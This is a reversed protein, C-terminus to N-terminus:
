GIAAAARARGARQNVAKPTWNELSRDSVRMPRSKNAILEGREIALRVAMQTVGRKEAAEAVSLWHDDLPDSLDEGEHRLEGQVLGLRNELDKVVRFLPHDMVARTIRRGPQLVPNNVSITNIFKEWAMGAKYAAYAYDFFAKEPSTLGGFDLLEGDLTRYTTM